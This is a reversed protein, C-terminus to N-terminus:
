RGSGNKKYIDVGDFEFSVTGRETRIAEINLSRFTETVERHPHGYRNDKGASIIAWRPAVAEVFRKGSSTRSGHHGAKLIDSKLNSGYLSVLYNEVSKPSDGTLMVSTSGYALRGVISATNTEFKSVETDPYL